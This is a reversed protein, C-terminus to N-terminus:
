DTGMISVLKHFIETNEYVGTFKEAGPGFSFVPVMAASHNTSAFTPTIVSYDADYGNKGAAGLTFGGTEHDATVIVLTEGDKEAMDLVWNVLQNFDNMEAIMFEVQNGHGAWDIQSGEVMLFYGEGGSSLFETGIATADKLFTKRGELMTKMRENGLLFGYRSGPEPNKIKKLRTFNIEIGNEAFHDIGTTDIFHKIGAGAFFDIESGLLDMAIERQMYRNERHAYFGAPTADTISSSAILGTLFGKESLIEVINERPITDADVGIAYNYTKYGTAMATAAAPSQTVPADASSTKSLGIHKFRDFAPPEKSFFYPSSVQSLGMGDGILLIVNRPKEKVVEDSQAKISVGSVLIAIAIALSRAIKNMKMCNMYYYGRWSVNPEGPFKM